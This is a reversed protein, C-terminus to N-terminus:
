RTPRCVVEDPLLMNRDYRKANVTSIAAYCVPKM